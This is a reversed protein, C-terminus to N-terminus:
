SNGGQFRKAREASPILKEFVDNLVLNAAEFAPRLDVDLKKSLRTELKAFAKAVEVGIHLIGGGREERFQASITPQKSESAASFPQLWPLMAALDDLGKWSVGEVFLDIKSLELGRPKPSESLMSGCFAAFRDFEALFRSLVGEAGSQDSFRPYTQARRRWNLYFRDWQVQLVWADDASIMWVRIPPFEDFQHQQTEDLIPAHLQHNPYDARREEWFRGVTLPNLGPIPDFLVGCVVEVIPPSHLKELAM